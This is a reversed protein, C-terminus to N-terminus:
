AVNEQSTTHLESDVDTHPVPEHWMADELVLNKEASTKQQQEAGTPKNDM